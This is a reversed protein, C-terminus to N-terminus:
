AGPPIYDAWVALANGDPDTAPLAFSIEQGERGNVTTPLQGLVPARNGGAVSIVFAQVSRGGRTDYAVLTVPTLAQAAATRACTLRGTLADVTMGAPGRELFFFVQESDPDHAAANYVYPQGATAATPATTDFLPKQNPVPNAGVGTTFDVQHGDGNFITLTRGI